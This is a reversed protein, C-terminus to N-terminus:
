VVELLISDEIENQLYFRNKRDELHDELIVKNVRDVTEFQKIKNSVFEISQQVKSRHEVSTRHTKLNKFSTQFMPNVFM